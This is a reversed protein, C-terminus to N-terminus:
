QMYRMFTEYLIPCKSQTTFQWPKASGAFFVIAVGPDIEPGHVHDMYQAIPGKEGVAWLDGDPIQLSMWAQDSGVLRRGKHKAEIIKKPSDTPHFDLWVHRNTYPRVAWMSGNYKAHRGQVATYDCSPFLSTFNRLIVADIDMSWYFRAPGILKLMFETDFVRLRHFCNPRAVWHEGNIVPRPWMEIPECVSLDIGVPDDTVCVVRHPLDFNTHIMRAVANVKDSTYGSNPRWGNAWKWLIFVVEDLKAV